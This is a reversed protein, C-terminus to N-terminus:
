EFLWQDTPPAEKKQALEAALRYQRRGYHAGIGGVAVGAVGIITSVIEDIM